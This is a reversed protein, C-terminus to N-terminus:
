ALMMDLVIMQKNTQKKIGIEITMNLMFFVGLIVVCLCLM